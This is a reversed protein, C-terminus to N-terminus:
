DIMLKILQKILDTILVKSLYLIRLYLIEDKKLHHFNKRFYIAKVNKTKNMM